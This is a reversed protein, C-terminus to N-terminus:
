LIIFYIYLNEVRCTVKPKCKTLLTLLTKTLKEISEKPGAQTSVPANAAPKGGKGKTATTTTTTTPTTTTSGVFM